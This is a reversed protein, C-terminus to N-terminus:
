FSLGLFDMKRLQSRDAKIWPPDEVLRSVLVFALIGISYQHLFDM